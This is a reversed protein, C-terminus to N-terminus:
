LLELFALLAVQDDASLPRGQESEHWFAEGEVRARAVVAELSEASGDTFYPRKKYLRRLSSPRAGDTHVYPVIGTKEYGDRAWVIPGQRSLVLAEWREFAVSTSPDSAVLRASHCRECSEAFVEAGRREVADFSTRGIAMPNPRHTFDMLFRMLSQRLAVPSLETAPTVGLHSLWPAQDLRLSFWPDTGSGKGAVRFENHAVAALDPDLARTFHPGNSLLSLLPKTTAHVDGRGTHHTRGDVYGEFHCTECTFRSLRGDTKNEPAMLYTFFLAEGVRSAVGRSSARTSTVPFFRQAEAAGQAPAGDGAQGGGAKAAGSMSADLVWADLLTNALVARGDPFFAAATVGPALPRSTVVDPDGTAGEDGGVRATPRRSWTLAAQSPGGYGIARVTLGEGAVDVALVKPTVVGLASTNVVGRRELVGGEAVFGLEVFSDIYGFAGDRRDLPHDEVGGTVVWLGEPARAIAAGWIPGDRVVRALPEGSLAGGEGVAYLVLSHDFLSLVGLVGPAGVLRFPGGDTALSPGQLVRVAGGAPEAAPAPRLVSPDLAFLLDKREDIAFLTDPAMWLVDRVIAAGEIAARGTEELKDGRVVYRAVARGLEGTVFLEGDKGLSLGTPGEPAAARAAERLEADLLVVADDGRLIGAFRGDPLAVVAYPDPGLVEHATPASSFATLARESDAFARLKTLAVEIESPADSPGM